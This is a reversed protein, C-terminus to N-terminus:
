IIKNQMEATKKLVEADTPVEADIYVSSRIDNGRRPYPKSISIVKFLMKIDTIALDLEELTGVLRIQM